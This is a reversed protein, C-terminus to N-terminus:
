RQIAQNADLLAEKYLGIKNKSFASNNYYIPDKDNLRIAQDFDKIADNYQGLAYKSIGRSNYDQAKM